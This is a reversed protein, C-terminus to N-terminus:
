ECLFYVHTGRLTYRGWRVSLRQRLVVASRRACACCREGAARSKVSLGPKALVVQVRQAACTERFVAYMHAYPAVLSALVGLAQGQVGVAGCNDMLAVMRWVVGGHDQSADQLFAVDTGALYILAVCANQVTARKMAPRGLAAMLVRAGGCQSVELVNHRCMLMSQLASVGAEQIEVCDPFRALAGVVAAAAGAPAVPHKKKGKAAPRRLHGFLRCGM